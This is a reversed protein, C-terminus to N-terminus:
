FGRRGWRGPGDGVGEGHPLAGWGGFFFLREELVEVHMEELLGVERVLEVVAVGAEVVVGSVVEEVVFGLVAVGGYAGFGWIGVGEEVGVLIWAEQRGGVVCGVCGGRVIGGVRWVGYVGPGEDGVDVVVCGEEEGGVAAVFLPIGAGLGVLVFM